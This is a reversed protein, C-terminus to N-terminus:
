KTRQSATEEADIREALETAADRLQGALSAMVGEDSRILPVALSIGIRRGGALMPVAIGVSGVGVESEGHNEAVGVERVRGLERLLDTRTALSEHTQTLLDENPYLELVDDDSLQALLAKGVSTCNAPLSRGTRSGVRLGRNSEVADLYLVRNGALMALHATENTQRQLHQLIPRALRRVSLRQVVSLGVDTFAQGAVYARLKEDNRVFDHFELMALLRHATSPAVGLAASAETLRLHSQERFMLLLRFANNVSEIPYGPAARGSTKVAM